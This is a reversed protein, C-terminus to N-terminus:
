LKSAPAAAARVSAADHSPPVDLAPNVRFFGHPRLSFGVSDCPMVPYDEPRVFHTFAFTYWVVPDAGLLPRDEKIWEALGSDANSQFVYYGAPYLQGEAHPTVHLAATTFRGRTAVASDPAALLLPGAAPYLHYAVPRGTVPHRRGPNKVRWVRAAEAAPQRVAASTTLLETETEHFANGAPNRGPHSPERQANLESVVLGRGGEEDDVALDLRASFIHQHAAANVGEAVMTGYRSGGEAGGGGGAEERPTLLSTSLIGTLKIEHAITGDQQLYWYFCYEYNVATMIFSVVLRRARRIEAYGTRYDVHKWLLGADEEHLCVASPIVVPQGEGDNVVGDFYAVAGLCDCGLALSNAAFGLGYDGADFACKRNYPPSPDAYPVAMEVISARHVVPRRRGGEQPDTYCVDYLVLGERGNFGIRFDWGQWDVRWGDVTFSPGEPQTVHLPKPAERFPRELLRRHYNGPARPIARPPTPYSEIDIVEGANLDVIPVVDLPHAYENDDPCLKLYTFVQMLRGKWRGAHIAWPDCALQSLDSVGRQRLLEAVRPCGRAIREAELCDDPTALPQGDMSEGDMEKWTAVAAAAAGGGGGGGPAALEVVAEIVAFAPPAMVVCFARRAPRPGAGRLFALLAPKPPELLTVTNFRLRRPAAAARCAAAAAAVESPSLPDLPHPPAAAAAAAAAPAPPSM